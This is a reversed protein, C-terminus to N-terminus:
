MLMSIHQLTMINIIDTAILQLLTIAPLVEKESFINLAPHQPPPRRCHHSLLLCCMDAVSRWPNVVCEGCTSRRGKVERDGEVRPEQGLYCGRHSQTICLGIFVYLVCLHANLFFYIFISNCMIVCVLTHASEWWVSMQKSKKFHNKFWLACAM